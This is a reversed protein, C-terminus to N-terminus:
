SIAVNNQQSSDSETGGDSDNEPERGMVEALNNFDTDCGDGILNNLCEEDEETWDNFEEDLELRPAPTNRKEVANEPDM